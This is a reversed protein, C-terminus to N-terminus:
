PVVYAEHNADAWDGGGIQVVVKGKDQGGAREPAVLASVIALGLLAVGLLMTLTRAHRRM